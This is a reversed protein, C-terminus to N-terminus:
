LHTSFTDFIDLLDQVTLAAQINANLTTAQAIRAARWDRHKQEVLVTDDFDIIWYRNAYRWVFKRLATRLAKSCITRADELSSSSIRDRYVVAYSM